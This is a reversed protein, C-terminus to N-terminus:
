PDSRIELLWKGVSSRSIDAGREKLRETYQTTSLSENESYIECLVPYWEQKKSSYNGTLEELPTREGTFSFIRNEFKLKYSSKKEEEPIYNGKLISLHRIDPEISDKRLELVVRMKGEFGQSGLINNKSPALTQTRKGLHHIFLIVCDNENALRYFPELFTRVENYNNMAGPYIDGFTDFVILSYSKESFLKEIKELLSRTDFLFDFNVFGENNLQEAEYSTNFLYSISKEDDESSVYLVCRSAASITKGIFEDLGTVISICLQKIFTSKGVDSEGVFAVLGSKQFLDKILFPMSIIGLDIIERATKVIDSTSM